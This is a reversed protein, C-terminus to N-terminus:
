DTESNDTYLAHNSVLNLHKDRAARPRNKTANTFKIPAGPMFGTFWGHGKRSTCVKSTAGGDFSERIGSTRGNKKKPMTNTHTYAATRSAAKSNRSHKKSTPAALPTLAMANDTPFYGDVTSDKNATVFAYERNRPAASGTASVYEADQKVNKLNKGNKKRQVAPSTKIRM